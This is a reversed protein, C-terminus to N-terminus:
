KLNYVVFHSWGVSIKEDDTMRISHWAGCGSLCSLRLHHVLLFSGGAWMDSIPSRLRIVSHNGSVHAHHGYFHLSKDSLAVVSFSGGTAFGDVDHPFDFHQPLQPVHTKPALAQGHENNGWAWIRRPNDRDRALVTDSRVSLESLPAIELPAWSALITDGAVGAQGDANWGCVFLRGSEELVYSTDLSCALQKIRTGKPLPLEVAEDVVCPDRSLPGKSRGNGLQGLAFSGMGYLKGNALSFLSHLRGVALHSANESSDFVRRFDGHGEADEGLSYIGDRTALLSRNWGSAVLTPRLGEGAKAAAERLAKCGYLRFM